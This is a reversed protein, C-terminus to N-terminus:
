ACACLEPQPQVRLITQPQFRLITQLLFDRLFALLSLDLELEEEELEEDLLFVEEELM